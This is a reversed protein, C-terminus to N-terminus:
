IRAMMDHDLSSWTEVYLVLGYLRGFFSFFNAKFNPIGIYLDILNQCVIIFDTNWTKTTNLQVRQGKININRFGDCFLFPRFFELQM